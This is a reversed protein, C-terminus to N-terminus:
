CVISHRPSMTSGPPLQSPAGEADPSLTLRFSTIDVNQDEARLNRQGRVMQACYTWGPDPAVTRYTEAGGLQNPKQRGEMTGHLTCM